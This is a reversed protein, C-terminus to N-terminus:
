RRRLPLNTRWRTTTSVLSQSRLPSPAEAAIGGDLRQWMDLLQKARSPRMAAECLRLGTRKWRSHRPLRRHYIANTMVPCAKRNMEWFLSVPRTAYRLSLGLQISRRARDHCACPTIVPFRCVRVSKCSIHLHGPQISITCSLKWM